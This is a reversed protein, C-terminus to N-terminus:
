TFNLTFFAARAEDHIGHLDRTENCQQLWLQSIRLSMLYQASFHTSLHTGSLISGSKPVFNM